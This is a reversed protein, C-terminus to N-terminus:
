ERDEEGGTHPAQPPYEPIGCMEHWRAHMDMAHEWTLDDAEYKRAGDRIGRLMQHMAADLPMNGAGTGMLPMYVTVGSGNEREAKRVEVIAARAAQYVNDTGTIPMPVQMTPAYVIGLAGSLRVMVATGIPMEPGYQEAIRQRVADEIGPYLGAVAKDIGGDM